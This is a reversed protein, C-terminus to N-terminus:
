RTQWRKMKEEREQIIEEVEERRREQIEVAKQMYNNFGKQLDQVRPEIFAHVWQSAPVSVNAKLLHEWDRELEAKLSPSIPEVIWDDVNELFTDMSHDVRALKESLTSGWQSLFDRYHAYHALKQSVATQFSTSEQDIATSWGQVLVRLQDNTEHIDQVLRDMEDRKIFGNLARDLSQNQIEVTELISIMRSEFADPSLEQVMRDQLDGMIKKLEHAADSYTSLHARRSRARDKSIKFVDSIFFVTYAVIGGVTYYHRYKSLHAWLRNKHATTTFSCLSPRLLM